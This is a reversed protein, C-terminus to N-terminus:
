SRRRGSVIGLWLVRNAVNPEGPRDTPNGGLVGIARHVLGNIQDKGTDRALKCKGPVSKVFLYNGLVNRLDAFWKLELGEYGHGWSRCSM